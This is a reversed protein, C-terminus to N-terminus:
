RCGCGGGCCGGGGVMASVKKKLLSITSLKKQVKANEQTPTSEIGARACLEGWTEMTENM